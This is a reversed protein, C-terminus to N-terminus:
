RIRRRGVVLGTIGALGSWVLLSTPEPTSLGNGGSPVVGPVTNYAWESGAESDISVAHIVIGIKGTPNNSPDYFTPIALRSLVDSWLTDGALGLSFTLTEGPNVGANTNQQVPDFLFSPAFAPPSNGGMVGKDDLKNWISSPLDDNGEKYNVNPGTSSFAFPSPAEFIGDFIAIEKMSWGSDPADGGFDSLWSFEFEVSSLLDTSTNSGTDSFGTVRALLFNEFGGDDSPNTMLNAFRLEVPLGVQIASYTPSPCWLAFASCGFCAVALFWRSMKCEGKLRSGVMGTQRVGLIGSAALRGPVDWVVSAMALQNPGRRLRM